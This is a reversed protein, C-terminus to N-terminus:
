WGVVILPANLPESQAPAAMASTGFMGFVVASLVLVRLTKKM